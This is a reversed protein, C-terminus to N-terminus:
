LFHHVYKFTFFPTLHDYTVFTSLLLFLFHLLSYQLISIFPALFEFIARPLFRLLTFLLALPTQVQKFSIFRAVGIAAAFLFLFYLVAFSTFKSDFCDFFTLAIALISNSSHFASAKAIIISFDLFM